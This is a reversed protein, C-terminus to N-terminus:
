ASPTHSLQGAEEERVFPCPSRRSVMTRHHVHDGSTMPRSRRLPVSYARPTRRRHLRSPVPPPTRSHSSKAKPPSARARSARTEGRSRRLSMRKEACMACCSSRMTTAAGSSTIPRGNRGMSTPEGARARSANPSHARRGPHAARPRPRRSREDDEGQVGDGIQHPVRGARRPPGGCRSRARSGASQKKQVATRNQHDITWPSVSGPYPIADQEHEGGRHV